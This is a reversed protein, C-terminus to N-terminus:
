INKGRAEQMKGKRAIAPEMSGVLPAQAVLVRSSFSVFCFCIQCEWWVPLSSPPPLSAQFCFPVQSIHGKKDSDNFCQFDKYNYQMKLTEDYKAVAGVHLFACHEFLSYKTQGATVGFPRADLVNAAGPLRKQGSIAQFTTISAENPGSWGIWYM